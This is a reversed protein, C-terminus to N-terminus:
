ETPTGRAPLLRAWRVRPFAARPHLLATAVIRVRVCGERVAAVRHHLIYARGLRYAQRAHGDRIVVVLGTLPEIAHQGSDLGGPLAVIDANEGACLGRYDARIALHGDAALVGLAQVYHKGVNTTARHPDAAIRGGRFSTQEVVHRTAQDVGALVREHVGDRVREVQSAEGQLHEDGINGSGTV